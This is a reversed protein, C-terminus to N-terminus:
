RVLPIYARVADRYRAFVAGFRSELLGDETHVRIETGAIFLALSVPM